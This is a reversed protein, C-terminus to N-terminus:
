EGAREGVSGRGGTGRCGWNVEVQTVAGRTVNGGAMHEAGRVAEHRSQTGAVAVVLSSVELGM